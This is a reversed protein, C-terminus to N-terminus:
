VESKDKLYYELEKLNDIKSCKRQNVPQYIKDSAYLCKQKNNVNCYVENDHFRYYNHKRCSISIAIDDRLRDTLKECKENEYMKRDYRKNTKISDIWENLWKIHSKILYQKITM